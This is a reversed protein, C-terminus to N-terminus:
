ETAEQIVRGEKFWEPPCGLSIFHDVLGASTVNGKVFHSIMSTKCGYKEAVDKASIGNELFWIKVKIDSKM